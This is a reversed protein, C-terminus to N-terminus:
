VPVKKVTKKQELTVEVVMPVFDVPVNLINVQKNVLLLVHKIIELQNKVQNVLKVVLYDLKMLISDQFVDKVFSNELNIMTNVLVAVKVILKLLKDLQMTTNVQLALLVRQQEVLM